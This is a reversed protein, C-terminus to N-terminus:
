REGSVVGRLVRERVEALSRAGLKRLAGRVQTKVTNTSVGRSAALEKGQVGDRVAAEVLETEVRSLGHARSMESTMSAVPDLTGEVREASRAVADMVFARLGRRPLPKCAFHAGLEFARNVVGVEFRRTLVLAAAGKQMKRAGALWELGSGDPLAVDAILGCWVAGSRALEDAARCSDAEDIRALGAVVRRVARRFEADPDLILIRGLDGDTM